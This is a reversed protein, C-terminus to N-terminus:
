AMRISGGELSEKATFKGHGQQNGVLADVAIDALGLARVLGNIQPRFDVRDIRLAAGFAHAM